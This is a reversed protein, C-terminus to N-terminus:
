QLELAVTTKQYSPIVTATGEYSVTTGVTNSEITNELKVIKGEAHAFLLTGAMKLTGNVHMGKRLSPFDQYFSFTPQADIRIRACNYGGYDVLSEFTYGYTITLSDGNPLTHNKPVSWTGGVSVPTTPFELVGLARFIDKTVSTFNSFGAKAMLDRYQGLATNEIALGNRQMKSSLVPGLLPFPYSAGNVMMTGNSFSSEIELLDPSASTVQQTLTLNVKQSSQPNPSDLSLAYNLVTGTAYGYRLTVEQASLDGPIVLHISILMFLAALVSQRMKEAMM